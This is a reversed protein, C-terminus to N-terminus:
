EVAMLLKARVEPELSTDLLIKEKENMEGQQFRLAIHNNIVKYIRGMRGLIGEDFRLMMETGYLFANLEKYADLVYILNVMDELSFGSLKEEQRSMRVIEKHEREVGMGDHFGLTYATDGYSASYEGVAEDLQLFLGDNQGISSICDRVQQLLKHYKERSNKYEENQKLLENMPKGSRNVKYYDTICSQM